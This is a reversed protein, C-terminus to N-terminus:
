IWRSEERFYADCLKSYKVKDGLWQLARFDSDIMDNCRDVIWYVLRLKMGGGENINM